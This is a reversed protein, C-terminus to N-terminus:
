ASAALTADPLGTTSIVSNADSLPPLVFIESFEASQEARFGHHRLLELVALFIGIIKSRLNSGEFMDDLEEMQAEDVASGVGILVLKLFLRQGSAMQQGLQM